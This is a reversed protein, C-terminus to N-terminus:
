RQAVELFAVVATLRDAEAEAETCKFFSAGAREMAIAGKLVRIAADIAELTLPERGPEQDPVAVATM